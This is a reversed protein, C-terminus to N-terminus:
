RCSDTLRRWKTYLRWSPETCYLYSEASVVTTSSPRNWTTPNHPWGSHPLQGGSSARWSRKIFRQNHQRLPRRPTLKGGGGSVVGKAVWECNESRKWNCWVDVQSTNVLSTVLILITDDSYNHNRFNAPRWSVAGRITSHSTSWDAFQIVASPSPKDDFRSTVRNGRISFIGLPPFAAGIKWAAKERESQFSEPASRDFVFM